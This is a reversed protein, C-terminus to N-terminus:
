KIKIIKEFTFFYKLSIYVLLLFIILISYYNYLYYDKKVM